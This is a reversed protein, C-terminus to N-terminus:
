RPIHQPLTDTQGDTMLGLKVLVAAYLIVSVVYHSPGPVRYYRTIVTNTPSMLDTM